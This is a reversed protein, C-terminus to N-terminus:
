ACGADVTLQWRVNCWDLANRSAASVLRPSAIGESGKVAGDIKGVYDATAASYNVPMEDFFIGHMTLNTTSPWGAYVSIDALVDDVPRTALSTHVYGM